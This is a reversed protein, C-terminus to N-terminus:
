LGNRMYPHRLDLRQRFYRMLREDQRLIGVIQRRLQQRDPAAMPVNELREFLKFLYRVDKDLDADGAGPRGLGRLVTGHDAFNLCRRGFLRLAVAVVGSASAMLAYGLDVAGFAGVMLFVMGLLLLGYLAYLAREVM